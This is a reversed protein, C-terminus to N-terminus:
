NEKDNFSKMEKQSIRYALKNPISADLFFYICHQINRMPPIGSLIDKPVAGLFEKQLPQVQPFISLQENEKSVILTFYDEVGRSRQHVRNQIIYEDKTINVGDNVFTYTNKTAMM